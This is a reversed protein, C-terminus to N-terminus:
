NLAIVFKPVPRVGTLRRHQRGDARAVRTPTATAIDASAVDSCRCRGARPRGSDRPARRGRPSDGDYHRVVHQPRANQGAGLQYQGNRRSKDGLKSVRTSDADEVRRTLQAVHLEVRHPVRSEVLIRGVAPKALHHAGNGRWRGCMSPARFNTTLRGRM